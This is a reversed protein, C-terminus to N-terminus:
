RLEEDDEEFVVVPLEARGACRGDADLEEEATDAAAGAAEGAGGAGDVLGAGRKDRGDGKDCPFKV